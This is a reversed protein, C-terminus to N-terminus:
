CSSKLLGIAHVGHGSPSWETYSGISLAEARMAGTAHDFDIGFIGEGLVFGIGDFDGSAHVSKAQLFTGWTSHVNVLAHRKKGPVPVYPPNTM